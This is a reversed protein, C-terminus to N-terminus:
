ASAALAQLVLAVAQAGPDAHGRLREPPVYNARGALAEM